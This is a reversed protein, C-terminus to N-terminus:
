SYGNYRPNVCYIQTIHKGSSGSRGRSLKIDVTYMGLLPVSSSGKPIQDSVTLLLISLALLTTIGLNVKDEKGSNRPNAFLGVSAILSIILTPLVLNVVYYLPKRRIVLHGFIMEYPRACCDYQILRKHIDFSEVDWEDSEQYAEFTTQTNPLFYDIKSVDYSWSAFTLTCNQVDFPFYQVDFMCGVTYQATRPFFM